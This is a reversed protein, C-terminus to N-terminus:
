PQFGANAAWALPDQFLSSYTDPNDQMYSKAQPTRLFDALRKSLALKAQADPTNSGFFYQYVSSRFLPASAPLDQFGSSSIASAVNDTASQLNSNRIISQVDQSFPSSAPDVEQLTRDRTGSGDPSEIVPNLVKEFIPRGEDDEGTKRYTAGLEFGYQRVKQPDETTPINYYGGDPGKFHTMFSYQGTQASQNIMEHLDSALKSITQNHVAANTGDLGSLLPEISTSNMDTILGKEWADIQQRAINRNNQATLQDDMPLMSITSVVAQIDASMLANEGTLFEEVPTDPRVLDKEALEEAILVQSANAAPLWGLSSAINNAMAYAEEPNIPPTKKSLHLIASQYAAYGAVSRPIYNISMIAAVESWEAPLRGAIMEMQSKHGETIANVNATANATATQIEKEYRTAAGVNFLRKIQDGYQEKIQDETLEPLTKSKRLTNIEAYISQMKDKSPGMESIKKLNQNTLIANYVFDEGEEQDAANVLRSNNAVIARVRAIARAKQSESLNNYADDSFVGRLITDVQDDIDDDGDIQNLMTTSLAQAETVADEVKANYDKTRATVAQGRLTEVAQDIDTASPNPFGNAVLSNKALVRLQAADTGAALLEEDNASVKSLADVRRRSTDMGMQGEAAGMLEELIADTYLPGLKLKLSAKVAKKMNEIDGGADNIMEGFEATTQTKADRIKRANETNINNNGRARLMDQQWGQAQSLANQVAEETTFNDFGISAAFQSTADLRAKEHMNPILDAYQEGLKPKGATTFAENLAKQGQPTSIDVNVLGGVIKTTLDLETDTTQLANQRETQILDAQNAVLRKQTEALMDSTPLASMFYSDGGGLQNRYKEMDEVSATEGMDKRMKVFSNFADVNEKRRTRLRDIQGNYADFFNSGLRPM